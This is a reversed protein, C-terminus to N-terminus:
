VIKCGNCFLSLCLIKIYHALNGGIYLSYIGPCPGVWDQDWTTVVVPLRM